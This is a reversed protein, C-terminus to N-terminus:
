CDLAARLRVAELKWAELVCLRHVFKWTNGSLFCVWATSAYILTERLTNMSAEDEYEKRVLTSHAGTLSRSESVLRTWECNRTLPSTLGPCYRSWLVTTAIYGQTRDISRDVPADGRAKLEMRASLGAAVDLGRRLLGAVGARDPM